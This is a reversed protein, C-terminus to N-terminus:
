LGKEKWEAHRQQYIEELRDIGAAQLDSMLKAYNSEFEAETGSFVAASVGRNIIENIQTQLVRHDEEALTASLTYIREDYVFQGNLEFDKKISPYAEYVHHAAKSIIPNETTWAFNYNYVGYVSQLSNDAAKEADIHTQTLMPVGDADAEWTVGEIGHRQLLQGEESLMYSMFQIARAPDKCNTTIYWAHNGGIAGKTSPLHVDERSYGEPMPPLIAEYTETSPDGNYAEAHWLKGMFGYYQRNQALARKQEDKYTFIEPNVLGERYFRNYLAMANKYADTKQIIVIGDGSENDTVATGKAGYLRSLVTMMEGPPNREWLVSVLEPYAEKVDKLHAIYDEMTDLQPRGMENYMEQDVAFSFYLSPDLQFDTFTVDDFFDTVLYFNGDAEQYVKDMDTPLNDWFEPCYEDALENLPLAFGQNVIMNRIAATSMGAGSIIFDPIDMGAALLTNLETHDSTSAFSMDLSVGTHETIYQSVLDDGWTWKDPNKIHDVFVTFTIPTTDMAEAGATGLLGCVLLAMLLTSLIRKVQAVLIMREM